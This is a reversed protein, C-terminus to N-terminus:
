HLNQRRHVFIDECQISHFKLYYLVSRLPQFKAIIAIEMTLNEIPENQNWHELFVM